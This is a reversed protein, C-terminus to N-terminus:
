HLVPAVHECIKKALQSLSSVAKATHTEIRTLTGSFDREQYPLTLALVELLQEFIIKALQKDGIM